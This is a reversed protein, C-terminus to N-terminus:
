RSELLFLAIGLFNASSNLTAQHKLVKIGELLTVMYLKVFIDLLFSVQLCDSLVAYIILVYAAYM